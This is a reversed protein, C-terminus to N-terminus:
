PRPCIRGLLGLASTLGLECYMRLRDNIGPEDLAQRYLAVAARWDLGVQIGGLLALAEGRAPGPPASLSCASRSRDRESRTPPMVQTTPRLWVGGGSTTSGIRRAHATGGNGGARKRRRPGGSPQSTARGRRPDERHGRRTRRRCARSASCAGRSRGRDVGTSYPDRTRPRTSTGARAASARLPHTFRIRGDDVEVLHARLAPWLWLDSPAGVVQAVIDLTPHALAAAVALADQTEAPLATLQEGLLSMLEGPLPLDM